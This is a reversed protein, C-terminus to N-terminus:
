WCQPSCWMEAVGAAETGDAAWWLPRIVPLGYMKAEQVAVRFYPLLAQRLAFVATVAADVTSNNYRWPPISLQMPLLTNMQLWRIYLEPTPAGRFLLDGDAGYGNGGVMDPLAFRYGLASFTLLRAVAAQLGNRHGWVSDLDMLRMFTAGRQMHWGARVESLSSVEQAMSTYLTSYDLAADTDQWNYYVAQEDMPIYTVEGADLKVGDAGYMAMAQRVRSIFWARAVPNTVDIVASGTSLSDWWRVMAPRLRGDAGRQQVWYSLNAGLDFAQANTNCFPTVWLMVAFGQQHLATTMELPAPFRSTNFQLDGYASSWMDDIELVAYPIGSAKIRDAFQLVESQSIDSHIRCYLQFLTLWLVVYLVSYLLQCQNAKRCQAVCKVTSPM